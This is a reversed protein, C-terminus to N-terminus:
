FGSRDDPLPLFFCFCGAGAAPSIRMSFDCHSAEDDGGLGIVEVRCFNHASEQQPNVLAVVVLSASHTLAPQFMQFLAFRGPAARSIELGDYAQRACELVAAGLCVGGSRTRRGQSSCARVLFWFSFGARRSSGAMFVRRASGAAIPTEQAQSTVRRNRYNGLHEYPLAAAGGWKKLEVASVPISGPGLVAVPAAVVHRLRGWISLCSALGELPSAGVAWATNAKLSVTKPITKQM